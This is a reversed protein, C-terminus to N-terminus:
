LLLNYFNGNYEMNEVVKDVYENIINSSCIKYLDNSSIM